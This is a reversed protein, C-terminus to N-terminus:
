RLRKSSKPVPFRYRGTDVHCTGPIGDSCETRRDGDPYSGEDDAAPGRYRACRARLESSGADLSGYAHTKYCRVLACARQGDPGHLEDYLFRCVRQASIELTPAGSATERLRLSCKLMDGLDFRTLDYTM